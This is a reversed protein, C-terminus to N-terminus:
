VLQEMLAPRGEAAFWAHLGEEWAPLSIGNARATETSLEVRAPPTAPRPYHNTPDLPYAAQGAGDLITRAFDYRSVCGQNVLHYLGYAGTTLLQAIAQALHPAYTPHGAENTVVSLRPRQQALQLIKRPFNNGGPGYVWATRAIYFRTLLQQVYWEGALKSAGYVSLPNTADWEWYPAGKRGDFVYDTSIYCLAAGTQQALLAMNQTGLANIRYALTPERECGDVNTMAASQIIADPRWEALALVAARDTIDLRSHTLPLLTQEALAGQLARGLQGGAGTIIIRM